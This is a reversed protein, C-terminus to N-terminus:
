RFVLRLKEENGEEKQMERRKEKHRNEERGGTEGAKNQVAGKLKRMLLEKKGGEKWGEDIKDGQRGGM